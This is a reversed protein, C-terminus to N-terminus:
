KQVQNASLLEEFGAWDMPELKFWQISGNKRVMAIPESDRSIIMVGESTTTTEGNM